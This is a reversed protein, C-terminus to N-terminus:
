GNAPRCTLRCARPMDVGSEQEIRLDGFIVDYSGGGRPDAVHQGNEDLVLCVAQGLGQSPRTLRASICRDTVDEGAAYIRCQGVLDPTEDKDFFNHLLIM